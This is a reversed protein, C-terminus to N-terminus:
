MQDTGCRRRDITGAASMFPRSEGFDTLKLFKAAGGASLVVVLYGAFGV